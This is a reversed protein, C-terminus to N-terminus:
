LYAQKEFEMFSPFSEAYKTLEALRNKEYLEYYRTILKEGNEVYFPKM